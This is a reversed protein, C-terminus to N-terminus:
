QAAEKEKAEPSEQEDLKIDANRRLLFLIEALAAKMEEERQTTSNLQQRMDRAAQLLDGLREREAELLKEMQDGQNQALDLRAQLKEAQANLNQATENMASVSKLGALATEHNRDSNTAVESALDHLHRLEEKQQNLLASLQSNNERAENQNKKLGEASQALSKAAAALDARTQSDEGALRTITKVEAALAAQLKKDLGQVSDMAATFKKNGAALGDVQAQLSRAHEQGQKLLAAHTARDQKMADLQAALAHLDADMEAMGRDLHAKFKAMDDLKAAYEESLAGSKGVIEEFTALIHGFDKQLSAYMEKDARVQALFAEAQSRSRDLGSVTALLAAEEKRKQLIGERLSKEQARLLDLEKRGSALEPKIRAMEAKCEALEANQAQIQAQLSTASGSLSKAQTNLAERKETLEGINKELLKRQEDLMALAETTVRHEDKLQPLESGYTLFADRDRELLLREHKIDQREEELLIIKWGCIVILAIAVFLAVAMLTLSPFASDLAPRRDKPAADPSSTMGRKYSFRLFATM